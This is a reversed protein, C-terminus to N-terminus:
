AYVGKEFALSDWFRARVENGAFEAGDMGQVARWASAASTYKVFVENGGGQEERWIYVREVNGYQGQMEEGIEQMLNKEEIEKQVDLGDLMGTFKVVESMTGFQADDDQAEPGSETPELKRKKGGVLKGMNAPVAWGGGESDPRKKRKEAKAIIATTIGEGSAGLGKGKEWGYRKLLREAFGKQGPRNTKPADTPPSTSRSNTTDMAADEDSPPPVNYRVPARSITTSTEEEPPPPPPPPQQVNLAPQTTESAAPKAAQSAFKAKFAAIKAQAEARKAELDSEPAKVVPPPTPAAEVAPPPPPVPAPSQSPAMGGLRMRRMYADEGTADDPVSAPAFAPLSDYSMPERGNTPVRNPPYYDDGDDDDDVRAPRTNEDFGPPAFSLNSPPAFMGADVDALLLVARPIYESNMLQPRADEEDSEMGDKRAKRAERLQHYYLRAKWDRIERAQEESGKYDAYNNPLTPDYIDDWDWMREQPQKNKKKKKRGGREARPKNDQHYYEDDDGIWDEFNSQQVSPQQSTSSPVQKEPSSATATTATVTSSSFKHL